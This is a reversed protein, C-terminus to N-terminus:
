NDFYFVVRFDNVKLEEFKNVYWEDLENTFDSYYNGLFYGIYHEPRLQKFDPYDTIGLELATVKTKEHEKLFSDNLDTKIWEEVQGMEQISLWSHSHGDGEMLACHFKYGDSADEPIGRPLSIPEIRQEEDWHNRVNAMKAFVAYNRRSNEWHLENLLVWKDNIKAEQFIHIDCGM